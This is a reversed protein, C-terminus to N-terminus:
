IHGLVSTARTRLQVARSSTFERHLDAAWAVVAQVPHQLVSIMIHDREKQIQKEGPTKGHLAQTEKEQCEDGVRTGQVRFM